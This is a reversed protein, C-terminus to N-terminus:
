QNKRGWVLFETGDQFELSLGTGRYGGMGGVMNNSVLSINNYATLRIYEMHLNCINKMLLQWNFWTKLLNQVEKDHILSSAKEELIIKKKFPNENEV